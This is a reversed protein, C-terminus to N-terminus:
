NSFSLLIGWAWDQLSNPVNADSEDFHKDGIKHIPTNFDTNNSM